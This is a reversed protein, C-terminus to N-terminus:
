NRLMFGKNSSTLPDYGRGDFEHATYDGDEYVYHLFLQKHRGKQLTPRWHECEHGKLILASGPALDLCHEEGNLDIFSIPWAGNEESGKITVSVSLECSPRDTHPPLVAGHKYIRWFAYTRLLKRETIEEFIPRYNELFLEGVVPGMEDLSRLVQTSKEFGGRRFSEDMARDAMAVQSPSLLQEVVAFGRQQFRNEVQTLM